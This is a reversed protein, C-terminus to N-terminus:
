NERILQLLEEASIRGSINTGDLLSTALDRKEHHLKVIKEEITGRTVLKYITVPHRQGIRHARDAAQDEVAPNWWPDMHIVYDAATLNLGLGGARLSILFLDGFGSQFADVERRRERLPTSGDLYRYDIRKRDLYERILDLHGVFQSFVLAKHGNELLDTVIEGFLGLKSSPIRSEPAVLRANCCALRLRTIEALIKLHKQDAPATDRVLREMAQQRLAEYFAAEQPTMEVQLAVETRSPLEDLVESKLRRLIFPRILKKLRKKSERSGYKEIPVAFRENFRKFSGLLGPNIFNFLTWFESLHNEIPTGTTILKFDGNLSMAAQSRKTTMNKIAQAEDLVITSWRVSSLLAAEQLLLGYSCVLMTFPGAAAVMEERNGTGFLLPNLTPAFRNAEAMWNMCVSTPAVVLAPGGSARDVLVALAQLTKGLGMDDALCGGVGLHALRTLWKFGDVQYHRLEAKITSPVSPDFTDMSHFKEIRSKWAEDADLYPVQDALDELALSALPHIRYEKGRKDSYAELEELRRRLERTLALFQGEGLPIFRDTSSQLLELLRRMDLVLGDDLVMQGSMEFWDNRSRITLRLRDFSVERTVRLKEGEPWEVVAMGREQVTKLDLLVELCQEPNELKWHRDSEPLSALLPCSREVDEAMAEERTLDRRTQLRRGAVEAIINETGQGPKLYPGGDSFPKVFIELTFGSGSPLLHIHPMPDAEVKTIEGPAGGIASHVMVMSSIASIASLVEEKAAEPISLGREGIIRAMRRQEETLEIVKFRSPAEQVLVVRADGVRPFFQLKLEDGEHTVLVEPDGKIIEVRVSPSKKLFVLPHGVLVPLAKEMDFHYTHGRYYNYSKSLASRILADQGTMFELKTGSYFRALSISRGRTWMGKAGLRQEMPQLELLNNAYHLLWVLRSNSREVRTEHHGSVAMILARLSKQWGEEMRITSIFSRAGTEEEVKDIFNRRVPTDREARSLLVACEMALWNLGTERAKIFLNSLVDIRATTLRSDLWYSALASLLVPFSEHSKESAALLERAREPECNQMCYVARLARCAATYGPSASYVSEACGLLQDIRRLFAGDQLLLLSLIYLLGPLGEFYANRKGMRKRLAALEMEFLEAAKELGGEMLAASGLLGGTAKAPTLAHIFPRADSFRGGLLLRVALHRYFHPRHDQPVHQLFSGDLALDLAPRDSELHSATRQFVAVLAHVQLEPSIGKFWEGDFPNMCVQVFPDLDVYAGGCRQILDSHTRNCLEVDGTYVAIRFDRMLLPCLRSRSEFLASRLPIVRQVAEAMAQYSGERLAFRSAREAFEDRCRFHHDLLGVGQIDKLHQELARVSRIRAGPFVSALSSYIKYLSTVSAPAFVISCLQVLSKGLPTLGFYAETLPDTRKGSL